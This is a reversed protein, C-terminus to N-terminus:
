GLAVAAVDVVDGLVDAIHDREVRHHADVLDEVEGELWLGHATRDLIDRQRLHSGTGCSTRSAASRRPRRQCSAIRKAAWTPATRKPSNASDTPSMEGRMSVSRKRSSSCAPRISRVTM